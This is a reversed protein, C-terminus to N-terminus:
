YRVTTSQRPETKKVIVGITVWNDHESVRKDIKSIKILKRDKMRNKMEM